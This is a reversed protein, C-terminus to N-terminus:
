ARRGNEMDEINQVRERHLLDFGECATTPLDKSFGKARIHGIMKACVKSARLTSASGIVILKKKARTIAVNIRAVDHLLGGVDKQVNSRVMSIIICEKDRGQYTDITAVEVGDRGPLEKRLAQVQSRYPTIIGIDSEEAGCTIMGNVLLSVIKAESRNQLRGYHETQVKDSGVDPQSVLGTGGALDQTNNVTSHMAVRTDFANTIKDTNLFLLKASPDVSHLLWQDEQSAGARWLVREREAFNPLDMSGLAVDESGAELATASCIKREDGPERPAYVLDNALDMIERNMRYQKSLFVRSKEHAEGLEKLLTEGMGLAKAHTSKVLPPLQKDDGILIFRKARSIPGILQPTIAQGAEDVIVYDFKCKRVFASKASLCTVGVVLGPKTKLKHLDELSQRSILCKHLDPRVKNKRGVRYVDVSEKIKLLLSDVANNTYSCVLVSAKLQVLARVVFSITTSKGTGPLGQICVYDDAALVYRIAKKQQDNMKSNFFTELKAAESNSDTTVAGNPGSFALTAPAGPTALMKHLADLRTNGSWVESPIPGRARFVGGQDDDLFRPEVHDIILERHRDVRPSMEGSSPPVQAGSSSVKMFQTLSSKVNKVWGGQFGQQDVRWYLDELRVNEPLPVPNALELTLTDRTMDHVIGDCLGIHRGELSIVVREGLSLNSQLISPHTKPSTNGESTVLPHRQFSCRFSRSAFTSDQPESSVLKLSAICKGRNERANGTMTWLERLRGSSEKAEVDILKMWRRYFEIHSDSLHGVIANYEDPGIGSSDATGKELARHVTMCGVKEFCRTCLSSQNRYGLVRPMKMDEIDELTGVSQEGGNKQQSQLAAGNLSRLYHPTAPVAFRNRNQVVTAVHSHERAVGQLFAKEKGPLKNFGKKDGRTIYMLLGAGSLSGTGSGFLKRERYRDEMLLSYLLVQHLYRQRVAGTKLELVAEFTEPTDEEKRHVKIRAVLDPTGVIGWMCSYVKDESLLIEEIEVYGEGQGPGLHIKTKGGTADPRRDQYNSNNNNNNNNTTRQAGRTELPTKPQALTPMHHLSFDKLATIVGELEGMAETASMDVAFLEEKAQPSALIEKMIAELTKEDDLLNQEGNQECYPLLIREVLEHKLHGLVLSPNSESLSMEQKLMARRVCESSDMISTPSVLFDPNVVLFNRDRSVVISESFSNPKGHSWVVNVYDNKRPLTDEDAWEDLLVVRATEGSPRIEVELEAVDDAGFTPYRLFKIVKARTFVSFEFNASGSFPPLIRPNKELSDSSMKKTENGSAKKGGEEFQEMAALFIDDDLSSSMQASAHTTPAPITALTPAFVNGSPAANVHASSALEAARGGEHDVQMPESDYTARPASSSTPKLPLESAANPASSPMVESISTNAEAAELAAWMLSEELDDAAQLAHQREEQLGTDIHLPASIATAEAEAQMNEAAPLNACPNGIPMSAARTATTVPTTQSQSSSPMSATFWNCRKGIFRLNSINCLSINNRNPLVGINSHNNSNNNKNNNSNSHNKNNNSNNNRLIFNNRNPLVGSNSTSNINNKKNNNNNYLSFNNHNPLVGSNSNSNNISSNSSNSSNNIKSNSISNSNRQAPSCRLALHFAPYYNVLHNSALLARVLPRKALNHTLQDLLSDIRPDTDGQAAREGGLADLRPGLNVAINESSDQPARDSEEYMWQRLLTNNNEQNHESSQHSLSNRDAIAGGHAQGHSLPGALRPRKGGQGQHVRSLVEDLNNLETAPHATSRAMRKRDTSPAREHWSVMTAQRPTGVQPSSVPTVGTYEDEM